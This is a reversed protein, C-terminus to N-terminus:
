INFVLANLICNKTKVWTIHRGHQLVFCHCFKAWTKCLLLSLNGFYSKESNNQVGVHGGYRWTFVSFLDRLNLKRCRSRRTTKCRIVFLEQGKGRKYYTSHDPWSNWQQPCLWPSYGLFHVLMFQWKIKGHVKKGLAVLSLMVCLILRCEFPPWNSILPHKQLLSSLAFLVDCIQMNLLLLKARKARAKKMKTCKAATRTWEVVQFSRNQLQTSSLM